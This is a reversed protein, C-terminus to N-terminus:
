ESGAQQQALLKEIMAMVEGITIDKDQRDTIDQFVSLTDPDFLVNIVGDLSMCESPRGALAGPGCLVERPDTAAIQVRTLDLRLRDGTTHEPRLKVVLRVVEGRGDPLTLPEIPTRFPPFVAVRRRVRDGPVQDFRPTFLFARHDPQQSVVSLIDLADARHLVDFGVSAVRGADPLAVEVWVPVEVTDASQVNSVDRILVKSM